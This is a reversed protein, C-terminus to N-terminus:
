RNEDNLDDNPSIDYALFLRPSTFTHHRCVEYVPRSLKRSKSSRAPDPKSTIMGYTQVKFQVGDVVATRGIELSGM